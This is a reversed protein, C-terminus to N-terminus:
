ATASDSQPSEFDGEAGGRKEYYRLKCITMIAQIAWDQVGANEYAPQHEVNIARDGPAPRGAADLATASSVPVTGDGDDTGDNQHQFNQLVAVRKNGNADTFYGKFGQDPYSNRRWNFWTDDKQVDLEVIDATDRGTGHLCLTYPHAALGVNDHFSEAIGLVNLYANWPSLGSAADLAENENNGSPPQNEPDLLNEDILGWYNNGSPTLNPDSPQVVAKVTYIEEYPNPPDQAPLQLIVSGGDMVRLWANQNGNTVHKKTPLLALGGPINGLVCTVKPGSDGLAKPIGGGGEFGAKMRWYAAPSGTAPQVAHAIGLISDRAGCLESAARSVIGGMSHTILIVKECAGTVGKAEAIIDSIKQAIWKGANEPDDSWNYGIAYVPFDFLKALPGWDHTKLPTLFRLYAKGGKPEGGMIGAFGDGYPDTNAVELYNSSFNQDPPGVIMRRRRAPGRWLWNTGMYWQSGPDWRMDPLGGETSGNGDTGTRRLRSGMIGPVFVLPIAERQVQILHEVGQAGEPPPFTELDSQIKDVEWWDVTRQEPM